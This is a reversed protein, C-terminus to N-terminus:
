SFTASTKLYEEWSIDTSCDTVHPLYMRPTRWDGYFDTLVSEYGIPAPLEVKEFPLYTVDRFDKLQYFKQGQLICWDRMDGIHESMFFNKALLEELLLGRRNYPMKIFERLAEYKVPLPAKKQMADRIIEPHVTAIFFIRAMEFNIQQQKQEFPPLSDLPFVDLWISQHVGKEGPFEIFLTRSDRIKILPFFPASVPYKEFQKRSILPLSFNTLESPEDTELRYDYWIDLLYPPKIESAVIARLKEYDPRLMVVDVDDDWPIFGKHRAAGILTGGIIFWRLNHKECIRAFEKILNIQVNWIKKRQSTVLFGARMEDRDINEIFVEREDEGRNPMLQRLLENQKRLLENQERLIENIEKTM